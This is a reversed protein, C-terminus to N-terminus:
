LFAFTQQITVLSLVARTTGVLSVPPEPSCGHADDKLLVFVYFINKCVPQPTLTNKYSGAEKM